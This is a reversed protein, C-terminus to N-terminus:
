TERLWEAVAGEVLFDILAKEADTLVNRSSPVPEDDPPPSTM